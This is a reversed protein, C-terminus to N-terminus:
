SRVAAWCGGCGWGVSEPRRRRRVLTAPQVAAATAPMAVTPMTAATFTVAVSAAEVEDVGVVPLVVPVEVPVDDESDDFELVDLELELSVLLEVLAIAFALAPLM